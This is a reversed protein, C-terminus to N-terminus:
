AATPEHDGLVHWAAKCKLCRCVTVSKRVVTQVDSSGCVPCAKCTQGPM